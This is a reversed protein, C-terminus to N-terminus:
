GGVGRLWRRVEGLHATVAQPATSQPTRKAVLSARATVRSAIDAEFLESAARWEELSLSDFDRREAQLKRVLAGVVEHARRFPVGRGVLYDAVDTALLLGSAAPETRHRNLTLGDVVSRIVALSGILTDETVFVGEKDEQLDKNYGSPLGKVAALLAVLHGLARGTKGRVLELPDPNKKQPMMSSGTSLRDSLEFFRHEDGSFIILDEALRSLHVMTVTCAYLFSAAFDRDSSADISNAVVQSFGLDRALAEVDIPYSTGAIAGSGLPLADAETRAAALRDFDRRLPAVHALFFHAVLVPQAPRFHTYSPMIADGAAAAQRALADVVSAVARQLLPIRRRLYLRLDLSVQENRSRGTHLRRGADGLGEVLMREVFSHVDEDAGSVFDPDSEARRLMDALTKEIRGADEQTLVGARALARTWALSGTVDDPFLRRDFRFSAGFQFAAPDPAEDFRGSWLPSPHDNTM